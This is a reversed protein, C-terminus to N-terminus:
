KETEPQVTRIHLEALQRPSVVSPANMMLDEAQQNFPFLIVERINPEHALLRVAQHYHYPYCHLQVYHM